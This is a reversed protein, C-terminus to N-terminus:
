KEEAQGRTRKATGGTEPETTTASAKPTADAKSTAGAKPTASAKTTTTAKPAAPKPPAAEVAARQAQRRMVVRPHRKSQLRDDAERGFMEVIKEVTAVPMVLHDYKLLEVVNIASVHDTKVRHINRASLSVNENREPMLLLAHRELPLSSLLAEMDKTRPEEFTLADMLLIHGTAAKDSLAQRIALRKVKRPTKRDYDHARPGFVSGGHRFQPARTSGQRAHGTGKQRYPKSNGGSVQARTKTNANGQRRNVLQTTVVQHLMGVNVPAGFVYPDLEHERVVNGDMDYVNASPM